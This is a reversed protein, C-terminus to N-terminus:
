PYIEIIFLTNYYRNNSYSGTVPDISTLWIRNDNYIISGNLSGSNNVSTLATKNTLFLNGTINLFYIGDNGSYEFTPTVGLTNELVIATPDATGSQSILAKYIIPRASTSGDAMLYQESTGGSKIFADGIINGSFYNDTVSTNGIVVTNSDNVIAGNGIVTVNELNGSSVNAGFGLATNNHGTINSYLSSIGIAINNYGTTNSYMSGSGCATNQGGTTNSLLSQAGIAVNDSGTTNYSLSSVGNATNGNGTTNYRLSQIGLATNSSGTTNDTLVEFGYGTNSNGVTNSKLTSDGFSTNTSINGKGNNWVTKDIPNSELESTPVIMDTVWEIGNFQWLYVPIDSIDLQMYFDAYNYTGPPTVNPDNIGTHLQVGNNVLNNFDTKLSNISAVVDSNAPTTLSSLNGINNNTFEAILRLIPNLVNATIDNNGNAVIYTNIQALVTAYSPTAM